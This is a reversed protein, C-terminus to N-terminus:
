LASYKAKMFPIVLYKQLSRDIIEEPFELSLKQLVPRFIIQSWTSLHKSYHSLHQIHFTTWLTESTWATKVSSAFYDQNEFCSSATTQFFTQLCFYDLLSIKTWCNQFNLFSIKESFDLAFCGKLSRLISEKMEFEAPSRPHSSFSIWHDWPLRKSSHWLDVLSLSFFFSFLPSIRSNFVM